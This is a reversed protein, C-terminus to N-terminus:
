RNTENVGQIALPCSDPLTLPVIKGPTSMKPPYVMLESQVRVALSFGAPWDPMFKFRTTTSPPDLTNATSVSVPLM